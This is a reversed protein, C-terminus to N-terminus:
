RLIPTGVDILKAESDKKVSLLAPIVQQLLQGGPVGTVRSGADGPPRSTGAQKSGNTCTKSTVNLEPEMRPAANTLEKMGSTGPVNMAGSGLVSNSRAVPVNPSAKRLRRKIYTVQAESIAPHGVSRQKTQSIVVREFLDSQFQINSKAPAGSKATKAFSPITKVQQLAKM